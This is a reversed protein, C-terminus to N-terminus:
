RKRGSGSKGAPKEPAPEEEAAPKAQQMAESMGILVGSVLAAYSDMLAKGARLGAARSGRMASHAQNMLQEVTEAARAGSHTGDVKMAELAQSWPGQLPAAAAQSAKTLAALFTDEMRELDALASQMREQQPAVGQDIFQQLARRNAEVAQLLAADMGAIANRLMQEADPASAGRQETGATAAQAVTSLVSRINRLTLERGQLARLTAESVAKRLADGGKASAQAFMETLADADFGGTAM